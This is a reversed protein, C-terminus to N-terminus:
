LTKVEDDCIRASDGLVFNRKCFSAIPVHIIPISVGQGVAELVWNDSTITRWFSLNNAIRGGFPPESLQELPFHISLLFTILVSRFLM